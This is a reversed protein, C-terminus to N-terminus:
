PGGFGCKPCVYPVSQDRCNTCRGIQSEGCMPCSFFTIGKSILRIGCSNCVKESEM